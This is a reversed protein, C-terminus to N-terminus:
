QCRHTSLFQRLWDDWYRDAALQAREGGVEVLAVIRLDTGALHVDPASHDVLLIQGPESLSRLAADVDIPAPSPRVAYLLEPLLGVPPSRRRLAEILLDAIALPTLLM